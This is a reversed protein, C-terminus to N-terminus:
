LTLFTGGFRPQLDRALQDATQGVVAAVQPMLRSDLGDSLIAYSFELWNGQDGAHLSLAGMHFVAGNWAIHEYRERTIHVNELVAARVDVLVQGTQLVEFSVLISTTGIDPVILEGAANSYVGEFTQQLWQGCTRRVHDLDTM